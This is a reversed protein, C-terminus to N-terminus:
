IVKSRRHEYFILRELPGDLLPGKVQFIEGRRHLVILITKVRGSDEDSSELLLLLLKM